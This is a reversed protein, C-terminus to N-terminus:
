VQSKCKCIYCHRIWQSSKAGQKNRWSFNCLSKISSQGEYYEYMAEGKLEKQGVLQPLNINYALMASNAKWKETPREKM